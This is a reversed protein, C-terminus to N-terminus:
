PTEGAEILLERADIVRYRLAEKGPHPRHFDRRIGNLLITIRSGRGEIIEAGLAVFM